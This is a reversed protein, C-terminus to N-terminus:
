TVTKDFSLEHRVLDAIRAADDDAGERLRIELNPVIQLLESFVRRERRQRLSL